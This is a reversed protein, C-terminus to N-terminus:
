SNLTCSRESFQLERTNLYLYKRQVLKGTLSTDDGNCSLQDASLNNRGAGNSFLSFAEDGIEAGSGSFPELSWICLIFPMEFM